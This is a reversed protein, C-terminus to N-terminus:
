DASIQPDPPCFRSALYAALGGLSGEGWEAQCAFFSNQDLRSSLKEGMGNWPNDNIFVSYFGVCPVPLPWVVRCSALATELSGGGLTDAVDDRPSVCSRMARVFM